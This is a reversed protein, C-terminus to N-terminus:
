PEEGRPADEEPEGRQRIKGVLQTVAINWTAGAVLAALITPQLIHLILGIWGFIASAIPWTFFFLATNLYGHRLGLMSKGNAHLACLDLIIALVGCIACAAAFHLVYDPDSAADLGELSILLKRLATLLDM